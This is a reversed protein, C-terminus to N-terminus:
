HGPEVTGRPGALQLRQKQQPRLQQVAVARGSRQHMRRRRRRRRGGLVRELREGGKNRELEVVAGAQGAGNVGTELLQGLTNKTNYHKWKDCPECDM